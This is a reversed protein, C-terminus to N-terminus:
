WFFCFIVELIISNLIRSFLEIREKRDERRRAKKPRPRKPAASSHGNRRAAMSSRNGQKAM